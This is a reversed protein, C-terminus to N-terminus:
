AFQLQANRKRIGLHGLVLVCYSKGNPRKRRTQHTLGVCNNKVNGTAYRYPQAVRRCDVM